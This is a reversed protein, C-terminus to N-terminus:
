AVSAESRNRRRLWERGAVWCAAVVLAATALWTTAFMVTAFLLAWVGAVLLRGRAGAVQRAGMREDSEVVGPEKWQDGESV